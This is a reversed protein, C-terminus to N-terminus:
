SALALGRCLDLGLGTVDHGSRTRRDDHVTSRPDVGREATPQREPSQQPKGKRSTLGTAMTASGARLGAKLEYLEYLFNERRHDLRAETAPRVQRRVPRTGQM